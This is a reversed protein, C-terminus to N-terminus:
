SISTDDLIVVLTTWTLFVEVSVRGMPPTLTPMYKLHLSLLTDAPAEFDLWGLNLESWM